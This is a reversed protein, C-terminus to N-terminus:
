MFRLDPHYQVPRHVRFEDYGTCPLPRYKFLNVDPDYPVPRHVRIEDYGTYPLPRYKFLDLIQTLHCLDTCELKTM